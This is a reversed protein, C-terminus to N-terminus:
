TSRSYTERNTQTSSPLAPEISAPHPHGTPGSSPYSARREIPHHNSPTVPLLVHRLESRPLSLILEELTGRCAGILRKLAEDERDSDPALSSSPEQSVGISTVSSLQYNRLLWEIFPAIGLWSSLRLSKLSSRPLDQLDEPSLGTIIPIPGIDLYADRLCLNEIRDLPIFKAPVDQVSRIHISKISPLTLLNQLVAQFPDPLDTWGVGRGMGREGIDLISSIRLVSTFTLQPILKQWLQAEDVLTKSSTSAQVACEICEIWRLLHPSVKVIDLLESLRRENRRTSDDAISRFTVTQFLRQQPLTTLRKCVLALSGLSQARLTPPTLADLLDVIELLTEEPLLDMAISPSTLLSPNIGTERVGGALFRREV